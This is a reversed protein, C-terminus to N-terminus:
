SHLEGEQIHLVLSDLVTCHRLGYEKELVEYFYYQDGSMVFKSDRRGPGSEYINGRPFGGTKIFLEKNLLCPMYLGSRVLKDRSIQRCFEYFGERDITEPTRGFNYSIGWAGSRMKGSEVLRSCPINVGDYHKLLNALWGRHFVMDSNVFCILEASSNFGGYNYASYVRGLYHSNPEPDHYILYPLNCQPLLKAIEDTPDNGIIKAQVDFLLDEEHEDLTKQLEGAILNLYSPSKYVLTIIEVSRRNSM